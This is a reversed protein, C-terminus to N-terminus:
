ARSFPRHHAAGLRDLVSNLVATVEDGPAEGTAPSPARERQPAHPEGSPPEDAATQATQAPAAEPGPEPAHAALQPEGAPPESSQEDPRDLAPARSRASSLPEPAALPAQEPPDNAQTSTGAPKARRVSRLLRAFFGRRSDASPELPTSGRELAGEPAIPEHAAPAHTSAGAPDREAAPPDHTAASPADRTARTAPDREAAVPAQPGAATAPDREAAIAPEAAVILPGAATLPPQASPSAPTLTAELAPQARSLAPAPAAQPATLAHVFGVLYVLYVCALVCLFIRGTLPHLIFRHLQPM